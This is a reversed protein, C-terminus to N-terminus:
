APRPPPDAISLLVTPLRRPQLRAALDCALDRWLEPPAEALDHGARPVLIRSPAGVDRLTSALLESEDPDVWADREGHVLTVSRRQLTALARTSIQMAQQWGALGLLARRGGPLALVMTPERRDAREILEELGRDLALVFPHAPEPQQSRRRRAREAVARRLVDRLGRAPAGILTLPGVAPDAAAVSLALWGGEGHGVMGIRTPDVGPHGRLLAIADRADDILTFLGAEAWDGGSRGSGRKDYRLSAVGRDALAAALRALIGRESRRVPMFWGPHRRRDLRGDRDRPLLSPLLLVAPWRGDALDGAPPPHPLTLTGSLVVQGATIRLEEDRAM